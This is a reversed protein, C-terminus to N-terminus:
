SYSLSSGTTEDLTDGRVRNEIEIRVPVNEGPGSRGFLEVSVVLCRNETLVHPRQKCVFGSCLRIRKWIFEEGLRLYVWNRDFLPM